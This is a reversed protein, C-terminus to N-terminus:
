KFIGEADKNSRDRCCHRSGRAKGFFDPCFARIIWIDPREARMAPGDAGRCRKLTVSGAPVFAPSTPRLPAPLDVSNRTMVPSSAASAPETNGIGFFARIPCTACSAGPVSSESISITSEASL